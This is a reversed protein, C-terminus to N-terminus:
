GSLRLMVDKINSEVRVRGAKCVSRDNLLMDCSIGATLGGM